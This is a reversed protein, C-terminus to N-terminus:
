DKNQFNSCKKMFIEGMEPGLALMAQFKSSPGDEIEIDEYM